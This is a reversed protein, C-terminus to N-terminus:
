KIVESIKIDKWLRWAKYAEETIFRTSGSGYYIKDFRTEEIAIHRGDDMAINITVGWKTEHRSIVTGFGSENAIDGHYYIRTTTKIRM